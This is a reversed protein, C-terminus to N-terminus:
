LMVDGGNPSLTQGVYFSGDASALMVATPAIDDPRGLRGIPLQARKRAIWEASLNESLKTDILGPAIANVLVGEAAVERALARVFGIMGAKAATYHVLGAGGSYALQSSIAIIRGWRRRRMSPLVAQSLAFLARLHVDIMREFDAVSITEFPREGSTGANSVAIDIPGVEATAEEIFHFLADLDTVDCAAAFCKRGHKYVAEAVASAGTPDEVHCIAVDAGEAAFALAMAAGIGRSGGTIVATRGALKSTM